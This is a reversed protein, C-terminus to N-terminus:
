PHLQHMPVLLLILSELIFWALSLLVVGIELANLWASPLFPYGAIFWGPLVWILLWLILLAAPALACTLIFTRNHGQERPRRRTYLFSSVGSLLMAAIPLALLM